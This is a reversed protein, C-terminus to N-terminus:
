VHIYKFIDQKAQQRAQYQRHYVLEQKLTALFSEMVANDYCNGKRSMSCDIRNNRLLKQYDNSAHLGSSPEVDPRGPQGSGLPATPRERWKLGLTGFSGNSKELVTFRWLIM